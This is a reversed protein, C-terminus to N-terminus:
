GLILIKWALIGVLSSSNLMHFDSNEHSPEFNLESAGRVGGCGHDSIAHVRLSVAGPVEWLRETASVWATRLRSVSPWRKGEDGSRM